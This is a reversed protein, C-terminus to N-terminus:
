KYVPLVRHNAHTCRAAPNFAELTCCVRYFRYRLAAIAERESGSDCFRRISSRDPRNKGEVRGSSNFTSLSRTGIAKWWVRSRSLKERERSFLISRRGQEIRYNPSFFLVEQRAFDFKLITTIKSFQCTFLTTLSLFLFFRPVHYSHEFLELVKYRCHM